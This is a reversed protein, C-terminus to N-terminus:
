NVLWNTSLGPMELDYHLKDYNTIKSNIHVACELRVIIATTFAPFVGM